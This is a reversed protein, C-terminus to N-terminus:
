VGQEAIEQNPVHERFALVFRQPSDTIRLVRNASLEVVIMPSEDMGGDVQFQEFVVRWRVVDSWLFRADGCGGNRVWVTGNPDAVLRSREYLVWAGIVFLFGSFFCGMELWQFYEKKEVIIGVGIVDGLKVVVLGGFCLIAMICSVSFFLVKTKYDDDEYRKLEHEEV